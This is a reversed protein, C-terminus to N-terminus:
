GHELIDQVAIGAVLVGSEPKLDYLTQFRFNRLGTANEVVFSSLCLNDGMLEFEVLEFTM